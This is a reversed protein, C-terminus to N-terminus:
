SLAIVKLDLNQPFKWGSWSTVKVYNGVPDFERKKNTGHGDSITTVM